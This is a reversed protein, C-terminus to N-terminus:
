RRRKQIVAVGRLFSLSDVDREFQNLARSQSVHKESEAYDNIGCSGNLMVDDVRDKLYNLITKDTNGLFQPGYSCHLDEIVYQGGPKVLPFYMELSKQQMEGVHGGDDIIIDFGGPYDQQLRRMIAPDEQRGIVIKVRGGELAKCRPDIDMGVITARSFYQEWMRISAGTQVGIELMVLPDNRRPSWMGDYWRTYGHIGMRKDTGWHIALEDLSPLRPPAITEPVRKGPARTEEMLTTM